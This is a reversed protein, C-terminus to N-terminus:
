HFTLRVKLMAGDLAPMWNEKSEKPLALFVANWCQGLWWPGWWWVSYDVEKKFDFFRSNVIISNNRSSKQSDLTKLCLKSFITYDMTKLVCIPKRLVNNM